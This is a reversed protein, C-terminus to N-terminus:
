ARPKVGGAKRIFSTVKMVPTTSNTTKHGLLLDMHYVLKQVHQGPCLSFSAELWSLPNRTKVNLGNLSNEHKLQFFIHQLHKIGSCNTIGTWVGKECKGVHVEQSYKCVYQINENNTGIRKIDANILEPENCM